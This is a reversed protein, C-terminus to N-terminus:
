CVPFWWSSLCNAFIVGFIGLAYVLELNCSNQSVTVTCQSRHVAVLDWRSWRPQHDHPTGPTWQNWQIMPIHSDWDRSLSIVLRVMGDNSGWLAGSFGGNPIGLSSINWICICIYICIVLCIIYYIIYYIIYLIIYLIIYIYTNWSGLFFFMRKLRWKWGFNVLRKPMMLWGPQKQAGPHVCRGLGEVAVHRPGSKAPCLPCICPAPLASLHPTNISM